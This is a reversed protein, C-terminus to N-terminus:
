GNVIRSTRNFGNQMNAPFEDVEVSGPACAIQSNVMDKLVLNSVEGQKLAEPWRLREQDLKVGVLPRGYKRLAIKIPNLVSQEFSYRPIKGNEIEDVTKQPLLNADALDSLSFKKKIDATLLTMIEEKSMMEPEANAVEPDYVLLNAGDKLIGRRLLASYPMNEKTNVDTYGYSDRDELCYKVYNIIKEDFYDSLHNM